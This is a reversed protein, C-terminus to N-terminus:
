DKYGFYHRPTTQITTKKPPNKGLQEREIFATNVDDFKIPQDNYYGREKNFFLQFYYCDPRAKLRRHKAMTLFSFIENPLNFRQLIFFTDSLDVSTTVGKVDEPTMLMKRNDSVQKSAHAVFMFKIDHMKLKAKLAYLFDKQKEPGHNYLRSTTLNDMFAYKAGSLVAEKIFLDAAKEPDKQMTGSMLDEESVFTINNEDSAPNFRKLEPIYEEKDDESAWLFVKTMASFDAVITQFLSSKGSGMTGLIGAFRYNKSGGLTKWFNFRTYMKLRMLTPGGVM